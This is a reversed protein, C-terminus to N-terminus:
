NAFIGDILTAIEASANNVGQATTVMAGLSLSEANQHFAHYEKRAQDVADRINRTTKEQIVKLQRIITQFVTSSESSEDYLIGVPINSDINDLFKLNSIISENIEFPITSTDEIFSM